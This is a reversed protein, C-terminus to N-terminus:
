KKKFFGNLLGQVKEKAAAPVVKDINKMVAEKLKEEGKTKLAGKSLKAITYAYDPKLDFGPGSVRMPLNKSGTNQVLVDSIKGTNDVMVVDMSSIKAGAVPYIEGSGTVQVKKDLGVFDFSPISYVSNTFHGKMTFTEFNGNWKVEKGKVKDKVVPISALMPNIFDSLNLKKIEGNKADAVVTVDYAPAKTGKYISASGAVKGTFVGAFNEVFPPLFAKFASLNLSSVEFSFKSESSNKGLLMTQSLKGSGKSFKFTLGDIAVSSLSTVIRGHGSFDENGININNWDLTINSPPLAVPTSAEEAKGADAVEEKAKDAKEEASKKAWLKERIMKEPIKMGHALVKIDFVKLKAMDFKENPDFIGALSTTVEGELIETKTKVALEKTKFSGDVTTTATIGEKSYGVGPSIAFSMNANIKKDAGYIVTGKSVLKAKSMDALNELGLIAAVDKLIIDVNIDTIEIEKTMKFNASIKNQTEFTTLIKGSVEGDKKLLVDVNTTVEPFKMNLGSKAMNNLKVIVTSSVSGNKVLDAINLQGIVITDFSIKSKDKMVFNATSAIEFATASEFNLGKVLFRSVKLEGNSNDRLSYKVSIDSLKVNIKSKGFVGLAKKSSESDAAGDAKNEAKAEEAKKTGLAYTWNNGEAFEAYNMMPADLKIEIVGNGSLLAWVPVKVLLQDVALMEIHKGDKTAILKLKELHINFNFGWGINVSDLTLDANPFVAKSQEIAMKKIEEPRLKTSAYYFAGMFLMLFVLFTVGVIKLTKSKTM